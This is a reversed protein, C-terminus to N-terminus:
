LIYGCSELVALAQAASAQFNSVFGSKVVWAIEVWDSFALSCVSQAPDGDRLPNTYCDVHSNFGDREITSCTLDNTDSQVLSQMAQQLCIRVNSIWQQAKPTFKSAYQGFLSCFKYGYGMAYGNAGCPVDQEVCDRYFDCRTSSPGPSQCAAPLPMPAASNNVESTAFSFCALLLLLFLLNPSM